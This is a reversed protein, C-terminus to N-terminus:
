QYNLCCVHCAVFKLQAQLQEDYTELIWDKDSVVLQRYSSVILVGRAVCFM